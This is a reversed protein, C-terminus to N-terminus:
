DINRAKRKSVSEDLECRRYRRSTTNVVPGRDSWPWAVASDKAKVGSRQVEEAPDEVQSGDYRDRGINGDLHVSDKVWIQLDFRPMDIDGEDEYGPDAASDDDEGVADKRKQVLNTEKQDNAATQDGDNDDSGHWLYVGTVGSHPTIKVLIISRAPTGSNGEQGTYQIASESDTRWISHRM